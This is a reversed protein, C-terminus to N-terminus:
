FYKVWPFPTISDTLEVSNEWKNVHTFDAKIFIERQTTTFTKVDDFRISVYRMAYNQISRIMTNRMINESFSFHWNNLIHGDMQRDTDKNYRETTKHTASKNRWFVCSKPKYETWNSITQNPKRKWRCSNKGCFKDFTLLDRLLLKPHSCPLVRLQPLHYFPFKRYHFSFCKAQRLPWFFSLFVSLRVSLSVPRSASVCVM